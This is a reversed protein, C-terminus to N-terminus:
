FPFAAPVRAHQRREPVEARVYGRIEIQGDGTQQPLVAILTAAICGIEYRVQWAGSPLTLTATARLRRKGRKARVSCRAARTSTKRCTVRTLRWRRVRGGPAAALDAVWLDVDGDETERDSVYAVQTGDPSVSAQREDDSESEAFLPSPTKGDLSSAFLRWRGDQRRSFIM